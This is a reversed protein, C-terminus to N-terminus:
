NSRVDDLFLYPDLSFPKEVPQPSHGQNVLLLHGASHIDWILVKNGFPCADKLEPLMEFLMGAWCANELQERHLNLNLGQLKTDRSCFERSCFRSDIFLLIEQNNIEPKM